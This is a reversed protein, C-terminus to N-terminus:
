KSHIIQIHHSVPTWNAMHMELNRLMDISMGLLPRPVNTSFRKAAFIYIPERRQEM